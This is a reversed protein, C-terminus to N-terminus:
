QFIEHLDEPNVEYVLYSYAIHDIPDFNSRLWRYQEPNERAGVLLNVGVIIHGSTPDSPEVISDPHTELYEQLYYESQGWDINSDALYRYAQKRDWIIENVYPIYHPFFSLVSICLFFAGFYVIRRKFANFGEWNRLLSSAFVLMLPFVVLYFRLGIQAKFLFNFYIVFFGIPGLLFLEKKFFDSKDRRLFYSGIAIYIFLQTVVPVKLLFAIFYYGLFGGQQRINGLLYINGFSVGTQEDHWVWDLGQLYPYPLPVPAGSLFSLRAQLDQFQDSRFQFNALPLFSGEFLFGANIILASLLIHLFMYVFFLRLGRVISRYERRKLATILAPSYHGLVLGLLVPYLFVSTYKALQAIGLALSSAIGWPLSLSNIFKWFCYIALTITFAAYLDTTVLHAHAVINPEFAFLFLAILGATKGYWEKSWTYILLGLLISIGITSIRGLREVQRRGVQFNPRFTQIVREPIANLASFPMKSNDFRTSDSDLIQEGYQYHYPEDYTLSDHFAGYLTLFAFNMLLLVVVGQRWQVRKM